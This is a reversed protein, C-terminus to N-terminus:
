KVGERKAFYRISMEIIAAMTVGLQVSLERILRKAEPTLRLSTTKDAKVKM